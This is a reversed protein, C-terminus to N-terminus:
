SADLQLMSRTCAIVCVTGTCTSADSQEKYQFLTLICLFFYLRMYINYFHNVMALPLILVLCDLVM